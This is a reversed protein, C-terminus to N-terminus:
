LLSVIRHKKTSQCHQRGIRFGFVTNMHMMVVLKRRATTAEGDSPYQHGNAKHDDINNDKNFWLNAVRAGLPIDTNCEHVM